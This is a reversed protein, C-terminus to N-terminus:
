REELVYIKGNGSALYLEGSADLGFSAVSNLPGVDWTHREAVTGDDAVRLSRLWSKCYDAYFYQGRLAAIKGRYVYGGTISCGDDHGYEAVPLRLGTRTCSSSGFCDSAEMTNWGYNLGAERVGAVDIEERRNQGVDAIYLRSSALDFAFRWPNRLGSAWIEPRIGARGVFPNDRPIAYGAGANAGDVDLRLMKGLLAGMNQGNGKPDGGSGGDGMGVYLMGDPGFAIMGGNHNAYPQAVTIVLQGSADDARDRDSSVHYREVRTDGGRDTYNVYFYGNQAYRPHFALGLLGREGGYSVKSSIDLFPGPLAQGGAVIRIRGPQEVVFLRADGASAGVFVPSALGAAVERMRLTVEAPADAQQTMHGDDGCSRLAWVAALLTTLTWRAVPLLPPTGLM